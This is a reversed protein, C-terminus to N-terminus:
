FYQITNNVYTKCCYNGRLIWYQRSPIIKTGTKKGSRLHLPKFYFADQNLVKTDVSLSSGQNTQCVSQRRDGKETNM